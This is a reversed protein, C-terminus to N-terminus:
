SRQRVAGATAHQHRSARELLMQPYFSVVLDGAGGIGEAGVVLLGWDEHSALEIKREAWARFSITEGARVPRHWRVHKVGAAPGLMPVPLGANRFLQSHQGYYRVICNMWAATIHWDSATLTGADTQSPPAWGDYSARFRWIREPTFEYNGLDIEDGPAVHEFYKIGHDGPQRSVRAARAKRLPCERARSSPEREGEGDARVLCDMRLRMVTDGHQNITEISVPFAGMREGCAGCSRSGWVLSATLTDGPRVPKLWIIEEAGAPEVGLARGKLTRQLLGMVTVCTHWGSAAMGGLLTTEAASDDLHFPQADFETAFSIIDDRGLVATGLGLREGSGIAWDPNTM